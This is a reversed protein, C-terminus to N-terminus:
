FFAIRGAERLQDRLHRLDGRGCGAHKPGQRISVVVFRETFYQSLLLFLTYACYGKLGFLDANPNFRVQLQSVQPDPQLLMVPAQLVVNEELGAPEPRLLELDDLGM